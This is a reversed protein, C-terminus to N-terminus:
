CGGCSLGPCIVITELFLVEATALTDFDASRAVCRIGITHTGDAYGTRHDLTAFRGGAEAVIDASTIGAFGGSSQCEVTRASLEPDGLIQVRVHIPGFGPLRGDADDACTYEHGAVPEDFVLRLGAGGDPLATPGADDGTSADPAAAADAPASGDGPAAADPPSGSGGCASAAHLAVLVLGLRALRLSSLTTSM